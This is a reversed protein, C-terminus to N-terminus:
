YFHRNGFFGADMLADDMALEDSGILSMAIDQVQSSPKEYGASFKEHFWHTKM